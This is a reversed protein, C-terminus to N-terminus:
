ESKRWVPIRWSIGTEIQVQRFTIKDMTPLAFYESYGKKQYRWFAFAPSVYLGVKNRFLYQLKVKTQLQIKRGGADFYEPALFSGVTLLPTITFGPDKPVPCWAYGTELGIFFFFSNDSESFLSGSGGKESYGKILLMNYHLGTYLGRWFNAGLRGQINLTSIGDKRLNVHQAYSNWEPFIDGSYIEGTYQQREKLFPTYGYGLDLLLNAYKIGSGAYGSRAIGLLLLIILFRSPM